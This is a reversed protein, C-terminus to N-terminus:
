QNSGFKVRNQSDLETEYTLWTLCEYLNLKTVAELNVIQGGALRYMVGFWNWQSAFDETAIATENGEHQSDFIVGFDNVVGKRFDM